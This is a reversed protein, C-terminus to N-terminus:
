AVGELWSNLLDPSYSRLSTPRLSCVWFEVWVHKSGRDTHNQPSKLPIYSIDLIKVRLMM